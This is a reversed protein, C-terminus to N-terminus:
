AIMRIDLIRLIRGAIASRRSSIKTVWAVTPTNDLELPVHAHRLDALNAELHLWALLFAGLELDSNTIDGTPNKFSVLRAKIDEPWEFRWVFFYLPGKGRWGSAEQVTLALQTLM